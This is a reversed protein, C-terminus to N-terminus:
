GVDRCIAYLHGATMRVGYFTGTRAAVARLYFCRQNGVIVNGASDTTM